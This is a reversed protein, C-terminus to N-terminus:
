PLAPLQGPTDTGAPEVVPPIYRTAVKDKGQVYSGAFGFETDPYLTRAANFITQGQGSTVVVSSRTADLLSMDPAPIYVYRRDSRDSLNVFILVAAIEVNSIAEDYTEILPDGEVVETDVAMRRKMEQANSGQGIEDFLIGIDTQTALVPFRYAESRRRGM